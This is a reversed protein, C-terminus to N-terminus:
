TKQLIGQASIRHAGTCVFPWHLAKHDNLEGHSDGTNKKCDSPPM